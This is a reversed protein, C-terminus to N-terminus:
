KLLNVLSIKTTTFMKERWEGGNKGVREGMERFNRVKPSFNQWL